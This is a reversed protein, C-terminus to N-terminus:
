LTNDPMARPPVPCFPPANQGICPNMLEHRKVCLAALGTGDGRLKVVDRSIPRSVSPEPLLAVMRALFSTAFAAESGSFTRFATFAVTLYGSLRRVLPPLTECVPRGLKFLPVIRSYKSTERRAYHALSPFGYLSEAMDWSIGDFSVRSQM